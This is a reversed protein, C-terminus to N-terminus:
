GTVSDFRSLAGLNEIERSDTLDGGDPTVTEPQAGTLDVIPQYHLRLEGESLARRLATTAEFRASARARIDPDFVATRGRGLDKARYMAADADRLLDAATSDRDAMAIGISAGLFRAPGQTHFPQQLSEHLREAVHHATALGGTECLVVFEDGGFRAVTDEPRVAALLRHAVEVLVADGAAHGEADNLVKFRDLDLFLVALHAPGRGSLAHQLRDLLLTRNPLGTLVDHTARHAAAVELTKRRTIDTYSLVAGGEPVHLPVISLSFYLHSDELECPIDQQFEQSAGTLVSRLGSAVALADPRSPGTVHDCVAFFDVGTGCTAPSGGGSIAQRTWAENVAIIRGDNDIVATLALMSDLVASQFGALRALRERNRLRESVDHFTIVAGARDGRLPLARYDVPLATGDSRWLIEGPLRVAAGGRAPRLCPCDEQPNPTGDASSHHYLAHSSLGLARVPDLNLLAAAAPNMFTILGDQDVGVVGDATAELIGQLQETVRSSQDRADLLASVDQLLLLAAPQGEWEHPLPASIIVGDSHNLHYRAPGPAVRDVLARRLAAACREREDPRVLAAVPQGLLDDLVELGALRHAAPNAFRVLGQDDVVALGVPVGDVLERYRSETARLAETMQLRESVERTTVLVAQLSPDQLGNRVRSELRRFTGDAHRVRVQLVQVQGPHALLRVLQAVLEDRDDHHVLAFPNTGVLAPAPLGLLQECADNVFRVVGEADHVSLLDTSSRVLAAYPIGDPSMRAPM